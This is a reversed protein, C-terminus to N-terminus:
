PLRVHIWSFYPFLNIISNFQVAYYIIDSDNLYYGMVINFLNKRDEGCKEEVLRNNFPGSINVKPAYNEKEIRIDQAALLELRRRNPVGCKDKPVAEKYERKESTAISSKTSSGRLRRELKFETKTNKMLQRSTDAFELEETESEQLYDKTRMEEDNVEKWSRDVDLSKSIEFGEFGLTTDIGVKVNQSYTTSLKQFRESSVTRTTEKKISRFDVDEYEIEHTITMCLEKDHRTTQAFVRIFSFVIVLIFM